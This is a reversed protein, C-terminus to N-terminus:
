QVLTIEKGWCLVFSLLALVNWEQQFRLKEDMEQSKGRVDQARKVNKSDSEEERVKTMDFSTDKDSLLKKM